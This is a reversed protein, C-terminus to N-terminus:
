LPLRSKIENFTTLSTFVGDKWFTRLEGELEQEKTVNDHLVYGSDTKEVKFLGAKSAKSPDTAPAKYVPIGQGNVEVYSAKVAFGLEDRSIHSLMFAGGSLVVNSASFGKSALREYINCISQFNMGDGYVVGIHPDLQKYGKDNVTGGFINWLCEVVGKDQWTGVLSEEVVETGSNLGCLIDAPYGSDPRLVLKGDRNLIIDKIAEVIITVVRGLNYSDSVYAVLGTPYVELLTRVLSFTEGVALQIELHSANQTMLIDRVKRCAQMGLRYTEEKVGVQEHSSTELVKRYLQINLTATSHEFAPISGAIDDGAKYVDRALKIAAMTDTGQTYLLYGSITLAGSEHGAQGRYSFDHLAFGKLSQDSVTKDWWFDRLKALELGLTAVTMPKFIHQLISPEVFNTLWPFDDHTNSVTLVPLNIEVHSGEPLGKFELPLYGLEHLDKFHSLDDATYGLFPTLVELAEKCVEEWPRKFFHEDWRKTVIDVVAQLGYVIVKEDMTPFKAKLYKVFRPTLHSYIRTTGDPLQGKHSLKYSDNALIPNM